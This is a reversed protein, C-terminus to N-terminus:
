LAIKKKFVFFFLFAAIGGAAIVAGIVIAVIAGASLGGNGIPSEGGDTRTVVAMPGLNETKVVLNGDKDFKVDDVVVWKGDEFTLVSVAKDFNESSMTVTYTGDTGATANSENVYFLDSVALDEVAIDHKDALDKIESNLADVSAAGKIAEYAAEFDKKQEETLQDRNGYAIISGQGNYDKQDSEFDVLEPAPKLSPSDVFSGPEAFTPIAMGLVCVISFLIAIIKRM